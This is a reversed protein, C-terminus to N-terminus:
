TATVAGVSQAIAAPPFPEGDISAHLWESILDDAPCGIRERASEGLAAVFEMNADFFDSFIRGDRERMDTRMLRESWSKIQAWSTEPFGLLRATLRAPLQGAMADVLECQGNDIVADILENVLADIQTTRAAVSARTFRQQVVMRQQRHRPDDQAIMNVEEPSWIARYGQGSLFVSSRREVEMVDAHRTIGWLGNRHDRYVPEEARMRTWAEHPNSSYFDPDLLDVVLRDTVTM